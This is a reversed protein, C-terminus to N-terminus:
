KTIADRLRVGPGGGNQDLFVVGAKELTLQVTQLNTSLSTPVGSSAEMRQITPFSVGSEQALKKASWRLIARAARIQEATIMIFFNDNAIVKAQCRM